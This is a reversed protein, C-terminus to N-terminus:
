RKAAEQVRGNRDRGAFLGPLGVVLMLLATIVTVVTWSTVIAFPIAGAVLLGASLSRDDARIPISGLVALGGGVGIAGVWGWEVIGLAIYVFALAVLLISPWAGDLTAWVSGQRVAAWLEAVAAVVGLVAAPVWALGATSLGVLAPVFLAASSALSMGTSEMRGSMFAGWGVVAALGLTVLGLTMPDNKNGTWTPQSGTLELLGALAGVGAAVFGVARSGVHTV